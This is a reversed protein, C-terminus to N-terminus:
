KEKWIKMGIANRVDKKKKFNNGDHSSFFSDTTTNVELVGITTVILNTDNHLSDIAANKADIWLEHRCM